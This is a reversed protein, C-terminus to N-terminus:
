VVTVDDYRVRRIRGDSCAVLIYDGETSIVPGSYHEIIAAAEGSAREEMTAAPDYNVKRWKVRATM